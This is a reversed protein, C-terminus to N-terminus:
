FFKVMIKDLLICSVLSLTNSRTKKKQKLNYIHNFSMCKVLDLCMCIVSRLKTLVSIVSENQHPLFFPWELLLEESAQEISISNRVLETCLCYLLTEKFFM